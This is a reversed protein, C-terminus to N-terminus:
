LEASKPSKGLVSSAKLPHQDGEIDGALEPTATATIGDGPEGSLAIDLRFDGAMTEVVKRKDINQSILSPLVPRM